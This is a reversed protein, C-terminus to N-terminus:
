FVNGGVQILEASIQDIGPVNHKWSKLLLKLRLLILNMYKAVHMERQRVYNDIVMHM